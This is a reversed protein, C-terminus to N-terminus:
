GSTTRGFREDSSSRRRSIRAAAACVWPQLPPSLTSPRLPTSHRARANCHLPQGLSVLASFFFSFSFFFPATLPLSGIAHLWVCRDMCWGDAVGIGKRGREMRIADSSTAAAPQRPRTCHALRGCAAPEVSATVTVTAARTDNDIPLAASAFTTSSHLLQVGEGVARAKVARARVPTDSDGSDSTGAASAAPGTEGTLSFKKRECWEGCVSTCRCRSCVSLRFLACVCVM